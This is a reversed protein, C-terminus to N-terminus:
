KNFVDSDCGNRGKKAFQELLMSRAREVITRNTREAVGNQEPNYPVTTQHKIGKEKLFARFSHNVYERGNDSRM